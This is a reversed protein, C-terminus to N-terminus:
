ELNFGNTHTCVLIFDTVDRVLEVYQVAMLNQFLYRIITVLDDGFTLKMNVDKHGMSELYAEFYKMIPGNRFETVFVDSIGHVASIYNKLEVIKSM